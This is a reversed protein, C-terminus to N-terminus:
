ALAGARRARFAFKTYSLGHGFPVRRKGAFLIREAGRSTTTTTPVQGAERVVTVPVQRRISSGAAGGCHRHRRRALYWCRCADAERRCEALERAGNDACSDDAQGNGGPTSRANQEGRNSNTRDGITAPWAERSTQETDGISCTTDCDRATEVAELVRTALPPGSWTARSTRRTTIFRGAGDRIPRPRSRACVGIPQRDAPCAKSAAPPTAHPLRYAVKGMRAPRACLARENKAPVSVQAGRWRWCAPKPM